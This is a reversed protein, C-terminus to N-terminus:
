LSESEKQQCEGNHIEVTTGNEEYDKLIEEITKM